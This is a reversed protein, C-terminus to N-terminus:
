RIISVWGRKEEICDSQILYYYVASPLDSGNWDNQYNMSRYVLKGWRNFVSVRSGLLPEDVMFTQNHDDNNPTFVNPIKFEQVKPKSFTITDRGIGCEHIVEVWYTGYDTPSFTSQQSGDQWTFTYGAPNALPTLDIKTFPCLSQDEGLTIEFEQLPAKTFTVTDRDTICGRTVEVWYSGYNTAMFSSQHSGDQWTFAYGVPDSIPKLLGPVFPCITKDEGLNIDFPATSTLSIVETRELQDNVQSSATWLFASNDDRTYLACPAKSNVRYELDFTNNADLSSVFAGFYPQRVSPAELGGVQSPLNAVVYLHVGEPSGKIDSITAEDIGETLKLLAGTWSGQYVYVSKDGIPAGSFIRKTGNMLTGAFNNPSKDLVSNGTTEDFTWYGILGSETGSIKKCMTTRIDLISLARDFVRIEDVLGKYRYTTGNTFFQGVKAVEAPYNSAMPFNSDGTYYGGVDNGNLYLSIDNPGKVVACVHVWRNSFNSLDARKGRRFAPSGSGRGDGYELWIVTPTAYFWFGNYLDLNDQSVFLPGSTATPDVKVWASISFPFVLGDFINGLNVYDDVGDLEIARGAGVNDIQALVSINLCVAFGVLFTLRKMACFYFM